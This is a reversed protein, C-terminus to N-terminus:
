VLISMSGDVIYVRITNYVVRVVHWVNYYLERIELYISDTQFTKKKWINNTGCM